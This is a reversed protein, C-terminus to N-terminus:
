CKSPIMSYHSHMKKKYGLLSHVPKERHRQKPKKKNSKIKMPNKGGRMSTLRACRLSDIVFARAHGHGHGFETLLAFLIEIFQFLWNPSHILATEDVFVFPANIQKCNLDHNFLISKKKM